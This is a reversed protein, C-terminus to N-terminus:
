FFNRESIMENLQFLRKLIIQKPPISSFDVDCNLKASPKTHIYWIIENIILKNSYVFNTKLVPM